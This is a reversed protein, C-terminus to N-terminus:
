IQALKELETDFSRIQNEWSYARMADALSTRLDHYKSIDTLCDILKATLDAEDKYFVQAHYEDPIIEPYSLRRPLLPFCGYRIAEATAIGFNEQIATSVTIDGNKLWNIYDERSKVFGYQVVRKGLRDQASLFPKPVM